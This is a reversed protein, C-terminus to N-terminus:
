ADEERIRGAADKLRGGTRGHRVAVIEALVSLAMEGHGSGGLDLGIPASMRELETGSLGLALLRARRAAQTRRSGIAGVYGAGSRLAALLAADDLDPEHALVAIATAPGVPGLRAFAEAPEAALVRDAEPFAEAVARGPRPDAVDCRWGIVHAVRCLAAALDVAGILILQPPTAAAESV